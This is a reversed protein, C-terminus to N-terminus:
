DVDAHIRQAGAGHLVVRTQIFADSTNGTKCIEMWECFLSISLSGEFNNEFQLLVKSLYGTQRSNGQLGSGASMALHRADHDDASKKVSSIALRSCGSSRHENGVRSMSSVRCRSM